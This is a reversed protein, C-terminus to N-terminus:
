EREEGGRVEVPVQRYEHATAADPLELHLLHGLDDGVGPECPRGFGGGPLPEGLPSELGVASWALAGRRPTLAAAGAVGVVTLAVLWRYGVSGLMAAGLLTLAAQPGNVALNTAAATRGQLRPPTVRQRFTVFAVLSWSVGFGVAAMGAGVAIVSSTLFTAGGAALLALGAAFARVEGLRAVAGAATIGGAVAGVGQVSVLIGLASTSMGLRQEIVPFVAVNILGTAGFALAFLLTLRGLVPTRALHRVGASAERLFPERDDPAVSPSVEIRVGALLAATVLLCTATMMVVAGPGVAVYIATGVLPSLLRLSQDITSLVGNGSALHEDPLMDKLLESQAGATLSGLAGYGFMVAYVLWRDASSDVLLLAAVLAATVINAGIMLRRRSGRDALQGFLPGTLTSLGLTAFVGAAAGDSGTLDKVWVAVMLYLASDGVNTALWAAALRRFAPHVWVVPQRRLLSPTANM